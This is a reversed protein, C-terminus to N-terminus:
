AGVNDIFGLTMDFLADKSQTLKKAILVKIDAPSLDQDSHLSFIFGDGYYSDNFYLNIHPKNLENNGAYNTGDINVRTFQDNNLVMMRSNVAVVEHKSKTYQANVQGEFMSKTYDAVIYSYVAMGAQVNKVQNEPNHHSM